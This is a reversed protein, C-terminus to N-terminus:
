VNCDRSPKIAQARELAQVIAPEWDLEASATRQLWLLFEVNGAPGLLPSVTIGAVALELQQALALTEALVQRHVQPDRVVGGKAVQDPEAEFQPKVLAVLQAQPTLLHLTPPLVLALSIFSADIVALDALVNGPLATLHRINTRELLVVRPDTRLKWALQGYGVDIAYVRAAGRQLLCDTFGGTSAGVDATVLGAVALHFEDLAAALKVGGRSVFPLSTRLRVAADVAVQAGPKDTVADNVLVTGAMILRQAQEQNEALGRLVLLLDLRQKQPKTKM